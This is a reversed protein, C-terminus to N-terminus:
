SFRRVKIGNPHHPSLALLVKEEDGWRRIERIKRYFLCGRGALHFGVTEMRIRNSVEKVVNSGGIVKEVM